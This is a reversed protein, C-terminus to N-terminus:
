LEWGERPETNILPNLEPANTAICKTPDWEVAKEGDLWVALNGLLVTETLPVATNVFDSAAVGKGQIANVWESFHGPSHVYDVEIEEPGGILEFQEGYDGQSYLKGENGIFLSGSGAIERGEFLSADPLQGGDYWIMKVEKRESTDPFSYEIRSFKPYSDRNHGSTTALVSRPNRLDLSQFPLNMTHCGMDGLAGCGFDWWGRWALPHYNNAFPRYPAPGLWLDWHLYSPVPLEKGRETGQPWIPRNTWVHVEEVDGIVGQRIMQAARRLANSASYQNGMQTAVGMEKAANALLRAEHITHTLPKQTFCHKGMKMAQLSIIAHTHDPTSVTVADFKDGMESFLIRFDNFQKADPYRKAAVGLRKEDVDCIAVVEGHKAADATDSAGKGSVGICAFNIRGNPSGKEAAMLQSSTWVGAGLLSSYKIFDRRSPRLKM